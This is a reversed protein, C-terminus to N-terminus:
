KVLKGGSANSALTNLIELDVNDPVVVKETARNQKGMLDIYMYTGTPERRVSVATVRAWLHQQVNLPQSILIGKQDVLVTTGAMATITRLVLFAAGLSLVTLIATWVQARFTSLPINLLQALILAFVGISMSVACVIVTIPGVDRALQQRASLGSVKWSCALSKM